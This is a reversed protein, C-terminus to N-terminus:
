KVVPDPKTGEVSKGLRTMTFPSTWERFHKESTDTTDTASSLNFSSGAIGRKLGQLFMKVVTSQYWALGEAM